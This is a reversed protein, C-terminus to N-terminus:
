DPSDEAFLKDHFPVAFARVAGPLHVAARTAEKMSNFVTAAEPKPTWNLSGAQTVLLYQSPEHSRPSPRSVLAPRATFSYSNLM